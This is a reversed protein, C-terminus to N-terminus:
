ASYDQRLVLRREAFEKFARARHSLAGAGGPRWGHKEGEEMEGFTRQDGDPVFVPDYGFGQSGRPPWVLTGDVRGRFFESTGDPWVLCLTAVFAARRQSPEVAGAEKLKQEIWEMAMGFDRTGDPRTAWNATRVGPEGNLAEVVLGSDDSLAPLGSAEMASSAKLLANAEFTKGDEVPEVLELDDVSTITIDFPECLGRFERLKGRNHTALILEAGALSRGDSLAEIIESEPQPTTPYDRTTSM